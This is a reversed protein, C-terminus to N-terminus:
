EFVTRYEALALSPSAAAAFNAETALARAAGWQEIALLVDIDTQHELKNLGPAIAGIRILEAPSRTTPTRVGACTGGGKASSSRGNAMFFIVFNYPVDLGLNPRITQLRRM